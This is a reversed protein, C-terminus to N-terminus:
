KLVQISFSFISLVAPLGTLIQISYGWPPMFAALATKPEQHHATDGLVHQAEYLYSIFIKICQQM